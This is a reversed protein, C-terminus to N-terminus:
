QDEQGTPAAVVGVGSDYPPLFLPLMRGADRQSCDYADLHWCRARSGDRDCRADHYNARHTWGWAKVIEIQEDITPAPPTAQPGAAVGAADTLRAHEGLLTILDSGLARRYEHESTCLGKAHDRIRELRDDDM